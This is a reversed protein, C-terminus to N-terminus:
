IQLKDFMVLFVILITSCVIFIDAMNFVPFNYGYLLKFSIFDVVYGLRVRDILNGASGAILMSFTFISLTNMTDKYKVLYFTLFVIIILTIIIFFARKHELIGFAAGRNEVYAFQFFDEIIVYPRKNKLYKVAVYKTIQDLFILISTLALIM